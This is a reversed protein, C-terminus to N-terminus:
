WNMPCNLLEQRSYELFVHVLCSWDCGIDDLHLPRTQGAELIEAVLGSHYLFDYNADSFGCM